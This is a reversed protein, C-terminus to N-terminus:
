WTHYREMYIGPGPVPICHIGYLHVIYMFCFTGMYVHVYNYSNNSVCFFM